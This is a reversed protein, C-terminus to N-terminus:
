GSRDAPAPTPPPILPVPARPCGSHFVDTAIGDPYIVQLQFPWSGTCTPPDSLLYHLDLRHDKIRLHEVGNLGVVTIRHYFTVKKLLVAGLQLKFRTITATVPSGPPVQLGGPLGALTV